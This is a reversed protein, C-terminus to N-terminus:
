NKNNMRSLIQGNKTISTVNELTQSTKHPKILNLFFYM